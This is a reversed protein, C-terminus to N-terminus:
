NVSQQGRREDSIQRDKNIVRGFISLVGFQGGRSRVCVFLKNLNLARASFLFHIFIRIVLSHSFSLIGERYHRQEANEMTKILKRVRRNQNSQPRTDNSGARTENGNM